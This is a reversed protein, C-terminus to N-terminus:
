ANEAPTLEPQPRRRRLIHAMKFVVGSLMYTGAIALLVIKSYYWISGILAALLVVNVYRHQRGLDIDKFSWYRWTSVMLLATGLVLSLWMLPWGWLDVPSGNRFHVVAAVVGAGAPIPLGVFYKKGPRGPNSPIPNTQINFRALRAAGCVLFLFSIFMGASSIQEQFIGANAPDVAAVGWFFALFAPAIGFTIVDALSDFERGFDSTTGMMRAVRGDWGDFLIAWGIALAASDFHVAAGPGGVAGRVAQVLAYFGLFINGVTILSPLL